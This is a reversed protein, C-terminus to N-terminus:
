ALIGIIKSQLSFKLLEIIYKFSFDLYMKASEATIFSVWIQLLRLM